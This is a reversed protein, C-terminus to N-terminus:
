AGMGFQLATQIGQQQQQDQAVSNELNQQQIQNVINQNELTADTQAVEASTVPPPSEPVPGIKIVDGTTVQANEQPKDIMSNLFDASTVPPPLEVSPLKAYPDTRSGPKDPDSSTSTPIDPVKPPEPKAAQLSYERQKSVTALFQTALNLVSSISGGTAIGIAKGVIGGIGGSLAGLPNSAVSQALSVLTAPNGYTSIASQVQSQVQSPLTSIANVNSQITSLTQTLQSIGGPLSSALSSLQGLAQAKLFGTVGQAIVGSANTPDIRSMISLLNGTRTDLSGVGASINPFATGIQALAPLNRLGLAANLDTGRASNTVDNYAPDLAYSGDVIEGRKTKGAAQITGTVILITRESDAFYGDVISGPIVGVPAAAVGRYSAGSNIPVRPLAWYLDKDPILTENDHLGFLRVQIRGQKTPDMVNVVRGRWRSGSYDGSRDAM